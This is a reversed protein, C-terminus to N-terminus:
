ACPPERLQQEAELGLLQRDIGGADGNDVFICTTVLNCMHVVKRLFHQKRYRHQGSAQLELLM